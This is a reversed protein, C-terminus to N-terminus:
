VNGAMSAEVRKKRVDILPIGCARAYAPKENEPLQNAVNNWLKRIINDAKERHHPSLNTNNEKHKNNLMDLFFECEAHLILPLKIKGSQHANLAGIIATIRESDTAPYLPYLTSFTNKKM